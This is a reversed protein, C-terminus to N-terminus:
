FCTKSGAYDLLWVLTIRRARIRNDSSKFDHLLGKIKLLHAAVGIGSAFFLVKDFGSLDQIVGYPGDILISLRSVAGFRIDNSFGSQSDVLLLIREDNEVWAIMYPHAQPLGLSYRAFSPVLLYVYQGARFKWPRELDIWVPLADQPSVVDRPLSVLRSERWGRNRYFFYIMWGLTQSSWLLSSLLLALTSLNKGRTIHVWLFVLVIIALSLHAKLFIEYFRRRIVLISLLALAVIFALLQM